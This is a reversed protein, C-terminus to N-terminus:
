SPNHSSSPPQRNREKMSRIRYDQQSQWATSLPVFAQELNGFHAGRKQLPRFIYKIITKSSCVDDRSRLTDHFILIRVLQSLLEQVIRAINIVLFPIQLIDIDVRLGGFYAFSSISTQFRESVRSQMLELIISLLGGFMQSNKTFENERVAFSAFHTSKM